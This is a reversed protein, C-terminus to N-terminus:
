MGEVMEVTLVEFLRKLAGMEEEEVGEADRRDCSKLGRVNMGKGDGIRKWAEIEEEEVGEVDRRDWSKVGKMADPAPFTNTYTHTEPAKLNGLM